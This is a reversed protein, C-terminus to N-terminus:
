KRSMTWEVFDLPIQFDINFLQRLLHFCIRWNKLKLKVKGLLSLFSLISPSVDSTFINGTVRYRTSIVM